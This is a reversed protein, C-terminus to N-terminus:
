MLSISKIEHIEGKFHLLESLQPVNSGAIHTKLVPVNILLGLELRPPM